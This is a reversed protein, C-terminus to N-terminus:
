NELSRYYSILPSIYPRFKSGDPNSESKHISTLDDPPGSLIPDVPEGVSRGFVQPQGM